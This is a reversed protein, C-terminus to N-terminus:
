YIQKATEKVYRSRILIVEKDSLIAKNSKEGCCTRKSYYEKNESTYVEMLIHKWTQGSWIAM